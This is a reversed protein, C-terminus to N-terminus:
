FPKPNALVSAFRDVLADLDVLAFERATRLPLDGSAVPVGKFTASVTLIKAGSNPDSVIWSRASKHLALRWVSSQHTYVLPTYSTPVPDSGRVLMQFVPKKPM